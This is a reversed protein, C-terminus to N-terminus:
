CLKGKAPLDIGKKLASSERVRLRAGDVLMTIETAAALYKMSSSGTAGSVTARRETLLNVMVLSRIVECNHQLFEM